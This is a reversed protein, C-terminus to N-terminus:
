CVAKTAELTGIHQPAALLFTGAESHDAIFSGAKTWHLANRRERLATTWLEAHTVDAITRGAAKLRQKGRTEELAKHIETVKKSLSLYTDSVRQQLKPDAISAALRLGCEFWVAEVAAALMAIAPMYLGRQFCTLSQQIAEAIGPNIAAFNIGKLFIDVDTSITSTCLPRHIRGPFVCSIDFHVGGRHGATREELEPKWTEQGDPFLEAAAVLEWIAQYFALRLSFIRAVEKLTEVASPEDTVYEPLSLGQEFLWSYALDNTRGMPRQLIWSKARAIDERKVSLASKIIMAANHSM